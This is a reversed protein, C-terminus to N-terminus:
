GTLLRLGSLNLFYLSQRESGSLLKTTTLKSVWGFMLWHILSILLSVSATVFFVWVQINQLEVTNIGFASTSLSLPLFIFALQTLHKTSTGQEISKRSEKLALTSVLRNVFVHIRNQHGKITSQLFKLDKLAISMALTRGTPHVKMYNELNTLDVRSISYGLKM